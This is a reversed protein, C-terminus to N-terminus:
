EGRDPLLHNRMGCLVPVLMLYILGTAISGILSGRWSPM